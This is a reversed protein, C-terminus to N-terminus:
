NTLIFYLLGINISALNIKVEYELLQNKLSYNNEIKFSASNCIDLNNNSSSIWLNEPQNWPSSVIFFLDKKICIDM